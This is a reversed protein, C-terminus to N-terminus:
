AGYGTRLCFRRVRFGDRFGVSFRTTEDLKGERALGPISRARSQLLGLVFTLNGFQYSPAFIEFSPRYRIKKGFRNVESRLEM